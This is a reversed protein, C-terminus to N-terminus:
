LGVLFSWHLKLLLLFRQFSNTELPEFLKHSRVRLSPVAPVSSPRASARPLAGPGWVGAPGECKGLM